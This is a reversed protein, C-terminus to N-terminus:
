ILEINSQQVAINGEGLEWALLFHSLDQRRSALTQFKARGVQREDESQYIGFVWDATREIEASEALHWM